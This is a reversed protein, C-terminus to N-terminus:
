IKNLHTHWFSDKYKLGYGLFRDMSVHALVLIGILQLVLINFFFGGCFLLLGILRSHFINYIHAGVNPNITYGLLGIDPVLLLLPFWWWAFSLTSFVYVSLCFLALEELQLITKVAM